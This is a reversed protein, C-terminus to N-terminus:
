RQLEPRGGAGAHPAAGLRRLATAALWDFSPALGWAEHSQVWLPNLRYGCELDHEGADDNRAVGDDLPENDLGLCHGDRPAPMYTHFNHANSLAVGIGYQTSNTVIYCSGDKQVCERKDFCDYGSDRRGLILAGYPNLPNSENCFTTWNTLRGLDQSCDGYEHDEQAIISLHRSRDFYPRTEEYTLCQLTSGGPLPPEDEPANVGDGGGCCSFNASALGCCSWQYPIRSGSGWTLMATVGVAYRPALMALNGGVSHGHLAIGLSCDVQPLRCALALPGVSTQDGKGTYSYVLKAHDSLSMSANTKCRTQTGFVDQFETMIAVFGRQAMAQVMELEPADEFAQNRIDNFWPGAGDTFLYLPWPGGIAAPTYGQLHYEVPNCAVTMRCAMTLNPLPFTLNFYPLRPAPPPAPSIPPAAAFTPWGAGGGRGLPADEAQAERISATPISANAGLQQENVHYDNGAKFGSEQATLPKGGRHGDDNAALVGAALAALLVARMLLFYGREVSKSGKIPKKLARFPRGSTCTFPSRTFPM